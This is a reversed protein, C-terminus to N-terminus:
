RPAPTPPYRGDLLLLDVHNLGCARVKVLVDSPGLVPDRYDGWIIRDPGGHEKFFAARM